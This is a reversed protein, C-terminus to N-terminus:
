KPSWSEASSFLTSFFQRFFRTRNLNKYNAALYQPQPWLLAGIYFAWDKLNRHQYLCILHHTLYGFLRRLAIREVLAPRYNALKESIPSPMERNLVQFIERLVLYVPAQCGLYSVEEVFGQWDMPLHQIVLILDIIQRAVIHEHPEFINLVLLIIVHEPSLVKVPLDGLMWPIAKLNLRRYSLNYFGAAYNLQWHLDILFPLGPPPNFHIGDRFKSRFGPRPDHCKPQLNFGLSELVSEARSVQDSSILLDLDAMRRVATEGYFRLRLDAGKFLIVEIGSEVLATLVYLVERDESVSDRLALMYDQRLTKLSSPDLHKNWNKRMVERYLLPTLGQQQLIKIDLFNLSVHSQRFDLGGEDLITPVIQRLVTMLDPQLM